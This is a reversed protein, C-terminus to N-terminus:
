DCWRKQGFSGDVVTSTMDEFLVGMQEGRVYM